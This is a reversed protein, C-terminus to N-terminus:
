VRPPEVANVEARFRRCGLTSRLPHDPHMFQVYPWPKGRGYRVYNRADDFRQELALAASGEYALYNLAIHCLARRFRGDHLKAIDPYQIEVRENTASALKAVSKLAIRGSADRELSGHARRARGRKGPIGLLMIPAGIRNHNLLERDLRGNFENCTDCEVGLPLVMDNKLVCQPYVHATRISSTSDGRCYICTRGERQIPIDM